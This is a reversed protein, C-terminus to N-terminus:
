NEFKGTPAHPLPGDEHGNLPRNDNDLSHQLLPRSDSFRRRRPRGDDFLSLLPVVDNFRSLLPVVDDFQLRLLGDDDLRYERCGLTPLDTGFRCSTMPEPGFCGTTTPATSGPMM